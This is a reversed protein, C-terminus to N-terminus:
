IRLKEKTRSFSFLKFVKYSHLFCSFHPSHRLFLGMRTQRSGTPSAQAMRGGPRHLPPASRWCVCKCAWLSSSKGSYSPICTVLLEMSQAGVDLCRCMESANTLHRFVQVWWFSEKSGIVLFQLNNKASGLWLYQSGNTLHTIEVNSTVLQGVCTWHNWIVFCFLVFSQSKKYTPRCSEWFAAPAGSATKGMSWPAATNRWFCSYKLDYKWLYLVIFTSDFSLFVIFM